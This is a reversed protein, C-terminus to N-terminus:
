NCCKISVQSCPIFIEQNTTTPTTTNGAWFNSYQNACETCGLGGPTHKPEGIKIDIGVDGINIPVGTVKLAIRGGRVVTSIERSSFITPANYVKFWACQKANDTGGVRVEVFFKSNCVDDENGSINHNTITSFPSECNQLNSALDPFIFIDGVTTPTACCCAEDCASLLIVLSFVRLGLWISLIKKKLM